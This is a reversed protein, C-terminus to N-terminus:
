FPKDARKRLLSVSNGDSYNEIRNARGALQPQFGGASGPVGLEKFFPHAVKTDNMRIRGAQNEQKQVQVALSPDNQPSQQGYTPLGCAATVIGFAIAMGGLKRTMSLFDSM